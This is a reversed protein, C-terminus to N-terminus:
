LPADDGDHVVAIAPHGALSLVDDLHGWGGLQERGEDRHDGHLEQGIVDGHPAAAVDVLRPVEGLADGDLSRPTPAAEAGGRCCSVIAAHMEERSVVEEAM